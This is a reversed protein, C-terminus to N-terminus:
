TLLKYIQIIITTLVFRKEVANIFDNFEKFPTGKGWLGLRTMYAMNRPESAGPLCINSSLLSKRFTVPLMSSM